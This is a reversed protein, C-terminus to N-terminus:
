SLFTVAFLGDSRHFGSVAVIMVFFLLMFCVMVFLGTKLSCRLESILRTQDRIIGSRRSPIGQFFLGALRFRGFFRGPYGIKVM